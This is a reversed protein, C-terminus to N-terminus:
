GGQSAMSKCCCQKYLLSKSRERICVLIPAQPVPLTCYLYLCDELVNLWKSNSNTLYTIDVCVKSCVFTCLILTYMDMCLIQHLMEQGSSLCLFLIRAWAREWMANAEAHGALQTRMLRAGLVPRQASAQGSSEGEDHYQMLLAWLLERKLGMFWQSGWQTRHRCSDSMTWQESADVTKHLLM